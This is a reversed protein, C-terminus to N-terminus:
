PSSSACTARRRRTTRGRAPPRSSRRARRAHRRSAARANKADRMYKEGNDVSGVRVQMQEVLADLTEGYAQVADLGRPNILKAMRAYFADSGLKAQEASFPAHGPDGAGGIAGNPLSQLTGGDRGCWPVFRRSARGPARPTTPSCSRGRGSASAGSRPTPSGTSRWCCGARSRGDARGVERDDDRARVSRRLHRGPAAREAGAGGSLLRHEDDDLATRASGSQVHNTVQRFFSKVRASRSGQRSGAVARQDLLRACRPPRADTGRDCDRFGFPLGLKWSFYARLFYPLDACDPTAPIAASTPRITRACASITTSSTAGRIACRRTCRAFTSRSTPRRM